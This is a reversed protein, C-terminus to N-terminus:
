RAGPYNQKPRGQGWLAREYKDFECFCGQWDQAELRRVIGLPLVDVAINKFETLEKIFQEQSLLKDPRQHLRNLGRSSGPGVPAWNYKDKWFGTVGWRADAVVQGAIFSSFGQFPILSEWTKEMSDPNCKLKAQVIPNCVRMVTQYPKTEPERNRGFRATIMYAGSYNSLGKSARELLIEQIEEPKWKEPFGVAAMADINNLQRALTCAVLMNPHDKYPEYWNNLLWQSVKDDTRRVNTFRYNLLIEDDTWPKPEGSEKKLRISERERIWYLMRNLPDRMRRVQEIRM